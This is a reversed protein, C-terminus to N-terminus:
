PILHRGGETALALYRDDKEGYLGVWKRQAMEFTDFGWIPGKRTQGIRYVFTQKMPSLCTKLDTRYGWMDYIALSKIKSAICAVQGGGQTINAEMMLIVENGDKCVAKKWMVGAIPTFMDEKSLVNKIEIM